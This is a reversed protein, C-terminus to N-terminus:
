KLLNLIEEEFLVKSCAKAINLMEEGEMKMEIMWLRSKGKLLLFGEGQTQNEEGEVVKVVAGRFTQNVLDSGFLKAASKNVGAEALYTEVADPDRKSLDVARNFVEDNITFPEVEFDTQKGWNFFKILNESVHAKEKIFSLHHVVANRIEHQVLKGKKSYFNMLQELGMESINCRILFDHQYIFRVLKSLEEAQIPKGQELWLLEKAMLSHSGAVLRGNYEAPDLKGLYNALFLAAFENSGSNGIAMAVEELGLKYIKKNETM